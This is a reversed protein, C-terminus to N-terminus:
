AGTDTLHPANVFATKMARPTNLTIVLLTCRVRCVERDWSSSANGLITANGAGASAGAAGTSTSASTRSPM